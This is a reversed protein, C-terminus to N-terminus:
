EIIYAILIALLVGIIFTMFSLMGYSKFYEWIVNLEINTFLMIVLRVLGSGYSVILFAETLFGDEIFFFIITVILLFGLFPLALKISNYFDNASEITDNLGNDVALFVGKSLFYSVAFSAVLGILIFFLKVFSVADDSEDETFTGETVHFPEMGAEIQANISSSDVVNRGCYKCFNSDEPIEKGCKNCFM